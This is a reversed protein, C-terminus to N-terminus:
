FLFVEVKGRGATGPAAAMRDINKHASVCANMDRNISLVMRKVLREHNTGGAAVTYAFLNILTALVVCLGKRRRLVSQNLTDIWVGLWEHFNEIQFLYRRYLVKLKMRMLRDYGMVVEGLFNVAILACKV